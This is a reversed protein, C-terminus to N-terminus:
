NCVSVIIVVYIFFLGFVNMLCSRERKILWRLNNTKLIESLRRVVATILGNEM